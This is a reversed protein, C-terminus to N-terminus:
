IKLNYIQKAIKWWDKTSTNDDHLKESRKDFYTLSLQIIIGPSSTAM